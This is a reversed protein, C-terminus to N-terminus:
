RARYIRRVDDLISAETQSRLDIIALMQDAPRLYQGFLADIRPDSSVPRSRRLAATALSGRLAGIALAGRLAGTATEFRLNPGIERAIRQALAASDLRIAPSDPEPFFVAGTCRQAVKHLARYWVPNGTTTAIVQPVPGFSAIRLLALAIMRAIVARGRAASAVFATELLLFGERGTDGDSAGLIAMHQGTHRDSALILHDYDSLARYAMRSIPLPVSQGRDAEGDCLDAFICDQDLEEIANPDRLYTMRLGAEALVHDM